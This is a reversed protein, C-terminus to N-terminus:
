LDLAAGIADAAASMSRRDLHGYTGVTTTISEHGLHQQIVPLPVGAAIMWSACSHRLDHIRPRLEPLSPSATPTRRRGPGNWHRHGSAPPSVRRASQAVTVTPSCIDASYELKALVAKPVNITRKSMKTKTTGLRYGGTGQKWSRAIKVTGADQDVDSPRLAAVEGWRAGSAVLFEVMPRWYETVSALLHAFQERTLFVAEHTEADRPLDIDLAPNSAIHAPIAANLAGVLFGRKNSLTKHSATKGKDDPQQMGQIWAVVHGRNLSALPLDGLVPAIDNRIFARYKASTNQDVGTLSDVHATLFEGVTLSTALEDGLDLTALANAAGFKTALDCFKSASAFGRFEHQDAQRSASLAM